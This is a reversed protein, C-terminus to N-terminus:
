ETDERGQPSLWRDIESLDRPIRVGEPLRLDTKFFIDDIAEKDNRAELFALLEIATMKYRPNIRQGIM